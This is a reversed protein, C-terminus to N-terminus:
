NRKEENLYPAIRAHAEVFDGKELKVVFEFKLQSDRM